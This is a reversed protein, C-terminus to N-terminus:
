GAASKFRVYLQDPVQNELEYIIQIPREGEFAIPKGFGICVFPATRSESNRESRVFFLQRSTGSVIRRGVTSQLPTTSQSEWHIQRESIFYDAYRTTPSFDRESKQLTLLHIDLNLTPDYFTGQRMSNTNKRFPAVIEDRNYQGYLCFPLDTDVQRRNQSTSELFNLLDILESQFVRDANALLEPQGLLTTLMKSFTESANRDTVCSRYERIRHLDNVHILSGLKRCATSHQETLNAALLLDNLSRRRYLDHIEIGTEALVTAITIPINADHMRRIEKVLDNTSTPIAERLNRLVRDTTSKDLRIDCGPPLHLFDRKVESELQTRTFGTMARFRLDMRFRKHQMGVFDLVTLVGKEASHRLGRGIQQIFVIPSETPRLFLVTDIEPIDIGENFLDVTCIMSLEGQRFRQVVNEREPGPMGSHLPSSKIGALLFQDSMYKAHEISACFAVARMDRLDNVKETLERIVLKSRSEGLEVYIRNLESDLYRGSSWTLQSLDTGDDIGFYHFPCLLKRELAHWLRLEYTATGFQDVVSIGDGREPTATLGLLQRPRFHDLLSQYTSAEAHHFEDVIIVDFHQPSFERLKSLHLSQVSAFVHKWESARESGVNLEGFNGNKLVTRFASLSQKLIESRHAVFLLSPRGGLEKCLRQYDFAALITKGTGTAAVILNKSKGDARSATLASLAEIQHTRPTVDVFFSTSEQTGQSQSKLAVSLRERDNEPCFPEFQQDNWLRNFTVALGEFVQQADKISVRVNWELGDVLAKPSLNSSGITATSFGSDRHFIWAKAHLSTKQESGEYVIKVQAGTAAIRELARQNTAGLYTTTIVRLRDGFASLLDMILNLGQNGIFPCILDVRDASTLESRLIANFNMSQDNTVLASQSLPIRPPTLRTAVSKSVSQLLNPEIQIADGFHGLISIAFDILKGGHDEDLNEKLYQKARHEILKSLYEVQDFPTLSTLDARLDVPLSLIQKRLHSTVIEDYVGQPLHRM